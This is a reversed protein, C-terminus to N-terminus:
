WSQYRLGILEGHVESKLEDFPNAIVQPGHDRHVPRAESPLDRWREELPRGRHSRPRGSRM